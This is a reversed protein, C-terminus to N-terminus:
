CRSSAVPYKTTSQRGLRLPHNWRSLSLHARGEDEGPGQDGPKSDPYAMNILHPAVNRPRCSLSAQYGERVDTTPWLLDRQIMCEVLDWFLGYTRNIIGVVPRHFMSQLKNIILQVGSASTAVGNISAPTPSYSDVDRPVSLASCV